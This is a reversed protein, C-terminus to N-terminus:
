LLTGRSLLCVRSKLGGFEFDSIMQGTVPDKIRFTDTRGLTWSEMWDLSCLCYLCFGLFEQGPRILMRKEIPLQSWGWGALLAVAPVVIAAMLVSPVRTELIPALWLAALFGLVVSPLSAMIEM